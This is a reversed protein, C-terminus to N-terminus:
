QMGLRKAWGDLVCSELAVVLDIELSIAHDWGHDTSGELRHRRSQLLRLLRLDESTHGSRKRKTRHRLLTTM